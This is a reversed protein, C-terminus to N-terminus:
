KERRKPPAMFEPGVPDTITENLIREIRNMDDDSISWGPIENVADLQDPKRAGWLAVNIGQQLVWRAALHIVRKGYNEQALKDLREVAELYQEYRPQQFKPDNKRLDDGEFKTDQKMKGTLLGRCIVGYTVLNIKHEQCYPLQEDDIQREFLNYPPQMFHIPATKRFADMQERDYNSVGVSRIKGQDLLKHMAEATEAFPVQHDPWHVFYVDIYDVQLRKLSDELEKMIRAASSNRFVREKEDWEMAVKTSLVIEDRRNIEKLAKGTIEESTGFGYVPATDIFNIGQDFAKVITNVSEQEDTGGWMWGGIAWTGLGIRSMKKQLVNSFTYEM